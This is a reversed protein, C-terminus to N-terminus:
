EHQLHFLLCQHHRHHYIASRILHHRTHGEEHHRHHLAGEEERQHHRADEVDLRLLVALHVLALVALVVVVAADVLHRHTVVVVAEAAAIVEAPVVAVVAEEELLLPLHDVLVEQDRVVEELMVLVHRLHALHVARIPAVKKKWQRCAVVVFIIPLLSISCARCSM